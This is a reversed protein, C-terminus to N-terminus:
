ALEGRYRELLLAVERVANSADACRTEPPAYAIAGLADLRDEMRGIEEDPVGRERLIEWAEARSLGAVDADFRLGIGKRFAEEAVAAAPASQGESALARARALPGEILGRLAQRRVARPDRSRRARARGAAIAGAYALASLGLVAVSAPDPDLSVPGMPGRGRRPAALPAAGGRTAAVSTEAASGPTVKVRVTDSAQTRYRGAEPDFWTFTVPLILLTGPQDPLFAVDTTKEGRITGGNRDVRSGSGAVYHRSAGIARIEPDRIASVNGEGRIAAHATVAEGSPVSSRDVRLSLDFSGVGGSFSAPAGPPLPDVTVTIPDTNLVVDKPEVDPMGLMSWPDPPQIVRAVRCRVQASGIALRGTRTPFLATPIEMMAYEAGNVRVKSQRPPGLSESWFGATSAPKWDIDGLVDVRSYLRIWLVVQQNWYVHSRSVAAKVFIEPTGSASPPAGPTAARPSMSSGGAVVTLKLPDTSAADAGTGVRLSPIVFTGLRSPILRYVVTLSREVSGNTMSFSQQTGARQETMGAIPPLTVDPLTLSSSRVTVTLSAEEGLAVQGADLQADVGLKGSPSTGALGALPALGAALLVIGLLLSRGIRRRIPRTDGTV